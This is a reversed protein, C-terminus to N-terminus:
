LRLPKALGDRDIEECRSVVRENRLKERGVRFNPRSRQHLGGVREGLGVPVVCRLHMNANGGRLRSAANTALARASPIRPTTTTGKVGDSGAHGVSAAASAPRLCPLTVRAHDDRVRRFIRALAFIEAACLQEGDHSHVEASPAGPANLFLPPSAGVDMYVAARREALAPSRFSGKSPASIAGMCDSRILITHDLLLYLKSAALTALFSCDELCTWRVATAAWWRPAPTM